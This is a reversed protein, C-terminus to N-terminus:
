VDLFKGTIERVKREQDPRTEVKKKIDWDGCVVRLESPELDRFLILSKLSEKIMQYIPDNSGVFKWVYTRSGM